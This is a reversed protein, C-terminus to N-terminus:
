FDVFVRFVKEVADQGFVQGPGFNKELLHFGFDSGSADAGDLGLVEDYVRNGHTNERKHSFGQDTNEEAHTRAFHPNEEFLPLLFYRSKDQRGQAGSKKAGRNVLFNFRSILESKQHFGNGENTENEKLSQGTRRLIRQGYLLATIQSYAVARQLLFFEVRFANAGQLDPTQL